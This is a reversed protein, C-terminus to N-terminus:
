RPKAQPPVLVSDAPRNSASAYRPRRLLPRQVLALALKGLFLSNTVLYRRWLRRPESSLRFLWELGSRQMWRPAMPKTGAHFDFAAGVCVQVAHIRERQRHAFQDQKPAGLGIFVIRAGSADIRQATEQEEAPSLVRFPPSEAGVIVLGPYKGVLNTRLLEIVEPSSGYLYVPVRDAAALQCVRLMLEPGYVRERLGVKHLLNLAWRVPQGDPGVLEFSNVAERMAPDASTTIVAHVAQFSVVASVNQRAAELVLSAAQDVSTASVQVGFLDYKAPWKMNQEKPIGTEADCTPEISENGDRPKSLRKRVVRAVRQFTLTPSCCAACALRAYGRVRRPGLIDALALRYQEMAYGEASQALRRWFPAARRADLFEEYSIPPAGIQRRRARDCVFAIRSRLEAMHRGNTSGTHIRYALLVKDLNALEAREGMRLFMAWDELVGDPQYGGVERLLATRCMITPNCMAHRGHMLDNFITRHNTALASPRGARVSGLPEIQTGVLGVAPHRKLFALQEELRTPYAVDDADMRAFFETACLQLAWNSAIAPGQHQQRLLRIRPDGLSQVYEASGDTSGDDVVLFIWDELTQRRISDIAERLHPLANYVPAFVTVATM